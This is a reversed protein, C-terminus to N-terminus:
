ILELNNKELEQYVQKVGQSSYKSLVLNADPTSVLICDKLGVFRTFKDDGLYMNGNEDVPHGNDKLYDYVSEFSGMDSWEFESAVVKIHDSNEMVAYDVSISPIDLSSEMELMGAEALYWAKTSKEFVEPNYKQLEELFVGAKFCFMGSNWLFNGQELFAVAVSADPKERFSLVEEGDAEIYGYGTEPRTPRIGFTVINDEKALEIAKNVAKTYESGEAIIHDAPTVLLIDDPQAALAAFAIAPATNRPTAEVIDVYDERGLQKMSGASLERNGKNGVVILGNAFAANRQVALEFLNRQTDPKEGAGSPVTESFLKLYQKPRSKRSLPWLRSGVGGTLLVHLINSM